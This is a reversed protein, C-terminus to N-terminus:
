ESAEGEGIEAPANEKAADRAPAESKAEDAPKVETKELEAKAKLEALFKENAAQMKLGLYMGLEPKVQRRLWGGEEDSAAGATGLYKQVPNRKGRVRVSVVLQRYEYTRGNKKTVRKKRYFMESVHVLLAVSELQVHAVRGDAERHEQLLVQDRKARAGDRVM